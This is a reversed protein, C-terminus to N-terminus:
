AQKAASLVAQSTVTAGAVADVEISGASKMADQLTTLAKGGVDPTENEGEVSVDIIAGEENATLTVSVEGGFGAATGTATRAEGGSKQTAACSALMAACLTVSLIRSAIGSFKM